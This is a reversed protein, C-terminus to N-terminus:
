TGSTLYWFHDFVTELKNNYDDLTVDDGLLKIQMNSLTGLFHRFPESQATLSAGFTVPIDFYTDFNTFDQIQVLLNDNTSFYLIGDLRVITVKNTTAIDFKQDYFNSNANAHLEHRKDDYYVYSRYVFGPYTVHDEYLSNVM